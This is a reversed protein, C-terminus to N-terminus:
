SGDLEPLVGPVDLRNLQMHTHNGGREDFQSLQVTIEDSLNRIEAIQTMGGVVEDGKEVVVRDVHILVVDVEPWGSPSIHVEFDKHEGYLWYPRVELVTGSVPAYVPTGPDAGVDVATDPPGTRNSRWMRLAEGGVIHPNDPCCADEASRGSGHNQMAETMDAWPLLPEMSLAHDGSAQHFAIETLDAGEVPLYLYMSRYRAFLATPDGELEAAVAQEEYIVPEAPEQNAATGDSEGAGSLRAAVFESVDPSQWGVIAVASLLV